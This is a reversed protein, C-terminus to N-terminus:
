NRNARSGDLERTTVDEAIEESYQRRNGKPVRDPYVRDNIYVNAYEYIICRFFFHRRLLLFLFFYFWPPLHLFFHMTILTEYLAM